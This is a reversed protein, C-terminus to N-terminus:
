TIIHHVPIRHALYRPCKRWSIYRLQRITSGLESQRLGMHGRRNLHFDILSGQGPVVHGERVSVGSVTLNGTVTVRGKVTAIHAWFFTNVWPLKLGHDM